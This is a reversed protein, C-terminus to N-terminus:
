TVEMSGRLPVPVNLHDSNGCNCMMHANTIQLVIKMFSHYMSCVVVLTKIKEHLIHMYWNGIYVACYM